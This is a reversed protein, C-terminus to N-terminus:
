TAGPASARGRDDDTCEDLTVAMPKELLVHKGYAFALATHARPVSAADRRLRRRYRAHACLREVDDFAPGGFDRTFQERAAPLPDAGAVLRVRPDATFTPLMLTFARGLGAVGIRIPASM